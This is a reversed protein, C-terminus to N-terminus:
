VRERCSARGIEPFLARALDHGARGTADVEDAIVGVVVAAEDERGHQRLPRLDLQRTAVVPALDSSCVDSSWDGTWRTHRRRSSVSMTSEFYTNMHKKILSPDSRRSRCEKGVRREESRPSCRGRWTTALAGPRTLRM